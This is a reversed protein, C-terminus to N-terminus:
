NMHRYPKRSSSCRHLDSEEAHPETYGYKLMILIGNSKEFYGHMAEYGLRFNFGSIIGITMGLNVPGSVKLLPIM